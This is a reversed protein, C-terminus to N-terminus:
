SAPDIAKNYKGPSNSYVTSQGGATTTFSDPEPKGLVRAVLVKHHIQGHGEYDYQNFISRLDEISYVSIGVKM